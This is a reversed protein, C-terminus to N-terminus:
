SKRRKEEKNQIEEQKIDWTEEDWKEQKDKLLKAKEYKEEALKEREKKERIHRRQADLQTTANLAIAEKYSQGSKEKKEAKHPPAIPRGRSTKQTEVETSGTLSTQKETKQLKLTELARSILSSFEEMEEPTLERVNKKNTIDKYVTKGDVIKQKLIQKVHKQEMGVAALETKSTAIWIDGKQLMNQIEKLAEPTIIIKVKELAYVGEGVEITRAFKLQKYAEIEGLSINIPLHSIDM